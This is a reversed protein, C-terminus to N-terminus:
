FAIFQGSRMGLEYGLIAVLAVGVSKIVAIAAQKAVRTRYFHLPVGIMPLVACLITSGTPMEFNREEVDAKCWAFCIVAIVFAHLVYSPSDFQDTWGQVAEVFGAVVFSVVFLIILITSKAM